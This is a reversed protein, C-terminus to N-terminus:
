SVTLTGHMTAQKLCKVSYTGAAPAIFTESGGNAPIRGTDFASGSADTCTHTVSADDIVTVVDGAHVTGSPSGFAFGSIHIVPGAPAAASTAPAAATVPATTSPSPSPPALSMGPMSLDVTTPSGSPSTSALPACTTVLTLTARGVQQGDAPRLWRV